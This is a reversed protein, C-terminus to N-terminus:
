NVAFRQFAEFFSIKKPYLNRVIANNNFSISSPSFIGISLKGDMLRCDTAPQSYVQKFWLLAYNSM